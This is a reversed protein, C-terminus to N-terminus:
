RLLEYAPGDSILPSITPRLQELYQELQEARRSGAHEELTRERARAAMSELEADSLSMAAV